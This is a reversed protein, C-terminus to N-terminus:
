IGSTWIVVFPKYNSCHFIFLLFDIAEKKEILFFVSLFVATFMDESNLKSTHKKGSLALVLQSKAFSWAAPVIKYLTCYSFCIRGWQLMQLVENELLWLKLNLLCFSM